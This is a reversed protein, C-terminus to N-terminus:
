KASILEPSINAHELPANPHGTRWLLLEAARKGISYAHIDIINPAPFLNALLPRENNCTVIEIDKGPVIGKEALVPYAGATLIDSSFFIADIKPKTNLVDDLMASMKDREVYHHREDIKVVEQDFIFCKGGAKEIASKFVRGRIAQSDKEDLSYTFACNLCNKEILCKAALEGVKINDVNVHDWWLNDESTGLLGICKFNKLRKRIDENLDTAFILVGDVQGILSSIKKLEQMDSFHHYILAKGNGRLTEEVGTMAETYVPAQLISSLKGVSILAIRNTQRRKKKYASRVGPRHPTEKTIYGLKDIVSQVKNATATKIRPDNNIVYSVTGLSVGTAQAIDKLTVKKAM